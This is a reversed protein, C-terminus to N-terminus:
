SVQAWFRFDSYMKEFMNLRHLVMKQKNNTKIQKSKKKKNQPKGGKYSINHFIVTVQIM